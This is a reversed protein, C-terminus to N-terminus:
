PTREEVAEEFSDLKKEMKLYSAWTDPHNKKYEEIAALTFPWARCAKIIRVALKSLQLPFQMIIWIGCLGLIAKGIYLISLDLYNM